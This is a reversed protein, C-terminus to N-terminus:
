FPILPPQPQQFPKANPFILHKFPSVFPSVFYQTEVIRTGYLRLM